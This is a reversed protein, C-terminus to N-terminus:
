QSRGAVPKKSRSIPRLPKKPGAVIICWAWGGVAQLLKSPGKRGRAKRLLSTSELPGEGQSAGSARPLAWQLIADRLPTRCLIDPAFFAFLGAILLGLPWRWTRLPRTAMSGRRRPAASSATALM